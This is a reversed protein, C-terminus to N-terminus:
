INTTANHTDLEEQILEIKEEITKVMEDRRVIDIVAKMVMPQEGLMRGYSNLLKGSRCDISKIKSVQSKLESLEFIKSYVKANAVHIKTKLDILEQSLKFYNNLSTEVDYPSNTDVETTNYTSVRNFEENIKSVLKNKYKLAQKVTM